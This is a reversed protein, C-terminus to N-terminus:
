VQDERGLNLFWGGFLRRGDLTSQIHIENICQVDTHDNAGLETIVQLTVTKLM